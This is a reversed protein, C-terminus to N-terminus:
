ALTVSAPFTFENNNFATTLMHARTAGVRDWDYQESLDRCRRGLAERLDTSRTLQIFAELMAEVNRPEVTIIGDETDGFRGAGMPSAVIPLGHIAAEYTVQPGGEELSPMLFVDARAFYSHVDDVFGVIEVRDSALIDAYREAIIPEIKGVIQLRHKGPMSRWAELVFHIGKRICAYGCFMFTLADSNEYSRQPSAKRIDVGYSTPLIRNELPSGALAREVELNPAFIASAYTYKEEEEAIRADTIKHTPKLGMEEYATDLIKRATLMRTNIGELIVPIGREYLIRHVDVSAAPWLYALDGPRVSNLFRNELWRAAQRNISPYPLSSLINRLALTMPVDPKPMRRRVAFVHTDYGARYSGNSINICTMSPGVGDCAMPLLTRIRRRSM